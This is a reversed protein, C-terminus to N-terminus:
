GLRLHQVITLKNGARDTVVVVLKFRGSAMGRLAKRGRKNLKVTLTKRVGGTATMRSSKALVTKATIGRKKLAKLTKKEAMLNASLTAAENSKVSFKLGSSRLKGLKLKGAAALSAKPVTLDPTTPDTPNGPKTPDGPKTPNGPKTPPTTDDPPDVPPATDTCDADRTDIADATVTDTGTGCVM